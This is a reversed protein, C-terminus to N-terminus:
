SKIDPHPNIFFMLPSFGDMCLGDVAMGLPCLTSPCLTCLTSSTYPSPSSSATSPYPLHSPRFQFPLLIQLKLPLHTAIINYLTTTAYSHLPSTPKHIPAINPLLNHYKMTPYSLITTSPKTLRLMQLKYLFYVAIINYLTTKANFLLPSTPKYILTLNPLLNDYKM